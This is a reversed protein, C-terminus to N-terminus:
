ELWRKVEIRDDAHLEKVLRQVSAVRASRVFWWVRDVKEHDYQRVMHEMARRDKRTMDLEIAVTEEGADGHPLRLLADPARGEEHEREGSHRRRYREARLERETVLESRSNERLLYETLWVLAVTHRVESHVLPAPRLGVGAIRAGERTVRLVPVPYGYSRSRLILRMRELAALRHYTAWKGYTHKDVRWFFRRGVLEATVVGHRAIWGLIEV